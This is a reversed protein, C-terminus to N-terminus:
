IVQGIAGLKFNASTPDLDPGDTELSWIRLM